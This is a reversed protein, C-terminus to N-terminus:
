TRMESPLQPVWEKLCNTEHECSLVQYQTDPCLQMNSPRIAESGGEGWVQRVSPPTQPWCNRYCKSVLLRVTQFHNGNNGYKFLIADGREILHWNKVGGELTATWFLELCKERGVLDAFVSYWGTTNVTNNNVAGEGGAQTRRCTVAAGYHAQLLLLVPAQAEQKQIGAGWRWVGPLQQAPVGDGRGDAVDPLEGAAQLVFLVLHHCYLAHQRSLFFLHATMTHTHTQPHKHTPTHINTNM